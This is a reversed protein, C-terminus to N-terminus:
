YNENKIEQNCHHCKEIVPDPLKLEEALEKWGKFNTVDYPTKSIGYPTQFTIGEKEALKKIVNSVARYFDRKDM